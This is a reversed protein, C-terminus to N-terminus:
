RTSSSRDDHLKSLYAPLDVTPEWPADKAESLADQYDNRGHLDDTVRLSLLARRLRKDDNTLEFDLLGEMLEQMFSERADEPLAKVQDLLESGADQLQERRVSAAV